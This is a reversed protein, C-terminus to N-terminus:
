FITGKMVLKKYKNYLEVSDTEIRDKYIVNKSGIYVKKPNIITEYLQTLNKNSYSYQSAWKRAEEKKQLYQDYNHFVDLLAEAADDITCDFMQGVSPLHGHYDAPILVNSKVSKVLGSQCITTQGTNNTAIVPIGLAMAERPQISFGEGKSLSVYCDVNEFFHLYADGKLEFNSFHINSCGSENIAKKINNKTEEFGGRSNIVLMAKPNNGLAKAFSQVLAVQNKRNHSSSLNAFVMPKNEERKKIPRQLFNDINVALPIHFIPVVVGSNKYADILFPDPVIVADFYLNLYLAWEYPIKTSELMSYAFRIEEDNRAKKFHNGIDHGPFCLCDELIVIKGQKKYKKKCLKKIKSPLDNNSLIKGKIQVRYKESLAKALEATQRGIGDAMVINGIITVDPRLFSYRKFVTLKGIILFTIAFGVILIKLKNKSM